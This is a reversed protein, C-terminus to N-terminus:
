RHKEWNGPILSLARREALRARTLAKEFEGRSFSRLALRLLTRAKGYPVWEEVGQPGRLRTDRLAKEAKLIAELAQKEFPSEKAPRARRRLRKASERALWAKFFSGELQGRIFADKAEKLSAQASNFAGPDRKKGGRRRAKELAKEAAEIADIAEEWQVPPLVAEGEISPPLSAMQEGAERAGRERKEQEEAGETLIFPSPGKPVVFRPAPEKPTLGMFRPAPEGPAPIARPAPPSPQMRRPQAKAQPPALKPSPAEREIMGPRERAVASAEAPPALPRGEKVGDGEIEGHEKPTLALTNRWWRIVASEREPEEEAMEKPTLGLAKRWWQLVASEEEQVAKGEPHVKAGLQPGMTACGLFLLPFILGAFLHLTERRMKEGEQYRGFSQLMW